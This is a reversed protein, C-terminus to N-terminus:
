NLFKLNRKEFDDCAEYTEDIIQVNDYLVPLFVSRICVFGVVQSLPNLVKKCYRCDKCTDSTCTASASMAIM